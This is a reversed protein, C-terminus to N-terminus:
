ESDSESTCQTPVWIFWFHSLRLVVTQSRDNATSHWVLLLIYVLLEPDLSPSSKRRFHLSALHEKQKGQTLRVTTVRNTSNMVVKNVSAKIRIYKKLVKVAPSLWLPEEWFFLLWISHHQCCPVLFCFSHKTQIHLHWELPQVIGLATNCHWSSHTPLLKSPPAWAFIVPSISAASGRKNNLATVCLPHPLILIWSPTCLYDRSQFYNRWSTLWRPYSGFWLMSISSLKPGQRIWFIHLLFLFQEAAICQSLQLM